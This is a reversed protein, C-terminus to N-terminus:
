KSVGDVDVPKREFVGRQVFRKLSQIIASARASEEAILKAVEILEPPDCSEDRLRRIAGHAYNYIASLPQNIEHALGTAMEGMTNLRLVHALEVRHM